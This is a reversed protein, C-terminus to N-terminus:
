HTLNLNLSFQAIRISEMFAYKGGLESKNGAEFLVFYDTTNSSIHPKFRDVALSSYAAPGQWLTGLLEWDDYNAATSAVFISLNSRPGNYPYVPSSIIAGSGDPIGIVPSQCGGNGIAAIPKATTWSLGGDYSLAYSICPVDASRGSMILAEANTGGLLAVSPEGIGHTNNNVCPLQSGARWTTGHDDSYVATSSYNVTHNPGARRSQEALIILRGSGTQTGGGVGPGFMCCLPSKECGGPVGLRNPCQPSIPRRTSWTLGEDSSHKVFAWNNEVVYFLYVRGTSADVVPSPNGYRQTTYETANDSPVDKFQAVEIIGGWTRGRDTSRRVVVSIYTYDNCGTNNRAEAFALLTGSPFEKLAPIRFCFYPRGTAASRDGEHYVTSVSNVNLTHALASAVSLLSLTLTM